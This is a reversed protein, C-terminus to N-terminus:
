PDSRRDALSVRLKALARFLAQKVPGVGTQLVEAIERLRWQELHKLVFCLREMESLAALATHLDRGLEQGARVQEAGPGACAPEATLPLWSAPRQKRLLQLAANIAIRHIWTELAADHAFQARAAWASLLAEQVADEALARNRTIALCAGFWRRSAASIAAHFQAPTLVDRAVPPDAVAPTIRATM